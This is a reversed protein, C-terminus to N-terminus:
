ATSRINLRGRCRSDGGLEIWDTRGTGGRGWVRRSWGRKCVKMQAEVGVQMLRPEGIGSEKEERGEGYRDMVPGDKEMQPSLHSVGRGREETLVAGGGCGSEPSM